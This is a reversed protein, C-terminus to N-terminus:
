TTTDPRCPDCCATRNRQSFNVEASGDQRHQYMYENRNHRSLQLGVTPALECVSFPPPRHLDLSQQRRGNRRNTLLNNTAHYDVCHSTDQRGSVVGTVSKSIRLLSYCLLPVVYLASGSGRVATPTCLTLARRRGLGSTEYSTQMRGVCTHDAANADRSEGTSPASAEYM